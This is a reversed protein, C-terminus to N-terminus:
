FPDKGDWPVIPPAPPKPSESHLQESRRQWWGNAKNDPGPDDIRHIGWGVCAPCEQVVYNGLGETWEKCTVREGDHRVPDADTRDDDKSQFARCVASCTCEVTGDAHLVLDDDCRGFSTGELWELALAESSPRWPDSDEATM